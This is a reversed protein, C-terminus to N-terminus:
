RRIPTTGTCTPCQMRGVSRWSATGPMATSTDRLFHDSGENVQMQTDKNMGITDFAKQVTQFEKVDDVGDLTICGNQGLIRYSEASGLKVCVCMFGLWGICEMWATSSIKTTLGLSFLTCAITDTHSAM